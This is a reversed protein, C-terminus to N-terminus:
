QDAPECLCSVAVLLVHHHGEVGGPGPGPHRGLLAGAHRQAHLARTLAWGVLMLAAGALLPFQECLTQTHDPIMSGMSNYVLMQSTTFTSNFKM